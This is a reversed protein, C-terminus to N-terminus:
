EHITFPRGPLWVDGGGLTAYNGSFFIPGGGSCNIFVSTPLAVGLSLGPGCVHDAFREHLFLWSPSVCSGGFSLSGKFSGIGGCPATSLDVCDSTPFIQYTGCDDTAYLTPLVDPCNNVYGAPNTTLTKTRTSCAPVNTETGSQDAFAWHIDYLHGPISDVYSVSGDDITTGSYVLVGGATQDYFDVSAGRAPCSTPRVIRLTTACHSTRSRAVWRGDVAHAVLYDGAVPVRDGIVLVFMPEGSDDAFTPTTGEAETGAPRSSHCAFYKGTATPISHQQYVRALECSSSQPPLRLRDALRFLERQRDRLTRFEMELQPDRHQM